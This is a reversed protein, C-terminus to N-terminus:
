ALSGLEGGNSSAEFVGRARSLAPLHARRDRQLTGLPQPTNCPSPVRPAVGGAERDAGLEGMRDAGTGRGLLGSPASSGGEAGAYGRKRRLGAEGWRRAPTEAEQPRRTKLRSPQQTERWTKKGEEM